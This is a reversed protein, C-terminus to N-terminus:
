RKKKGFFSKRDDDGNKLNDLNNGFERDLEKLLEKQKQTLEKPVDVIIKVLQDGRGRGNLSQIGRGKLKFVDGPQTGSPVDYKVKGDLTPVELDCGLAAASYSIHMECWVNYGDREFIPHPRVNIAVRLDGAPGGNVGKNGQGRTNIVQRDDIGAPIKIEIKVSKRIRGAGSCKKCPNSIITGKGGCKPCAKQTQIVGFPTRQASTVQGKGGCEPCTKPSSGPAAGSGHCDDCVEVRTTEVERTCGKAAEEFSITVSAQTDSGRQPANPNGGGGFGGGGGGGFFSNFIDGLDFDFGAGNFGGGGYAGGGGAGYSPDVGAHGFRDYKAKKTADSLVEYAENAEKFKSEADKNDPNLDPHFQKATKRYAKKIEDDTANKDVGLVEYYDRKEAM